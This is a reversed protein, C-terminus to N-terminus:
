INPDLSPFSIHCPDPLKVQFPHTILGDVFPSIYGNIAFWFKESSKLM